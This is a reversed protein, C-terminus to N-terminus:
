AGFSAYPTEIRAPVTTVTHSRYCMTLRLASRLEDLERQDKRQEEEHREADDVETQQKLAVLYQGVGRSLARADGDQRAVARWVNDDPDVLVELRRTERRCRDGRDDAGRLREGDARRADPNNWDCHGVHM